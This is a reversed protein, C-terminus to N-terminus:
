REEEVTSTPASPQRAAAETALEALASRLEDMGTGSRAVTRIVPAALAASLVEDDLVFGDRAASDTMNLAVVMPRGLEAIQAALYLNRELNTSDLVVVVADLDPDLLAQEAIQEEPSSGALSYTGPLDVLEVELAGIRVTGAHREVTKGPWNAVHQRSGTLHNFLSSKGVNPNGALAVQLHPGAARSRHSRELM